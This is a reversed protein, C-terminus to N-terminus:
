YSSSARTRLVIVYCVHMHLTCIMFKYVNTELLLRMIQQAFAFHSLTVYMFCSRM